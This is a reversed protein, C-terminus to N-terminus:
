LVEGIFHTKKVKIWGKFHTLRTEPRHEFISIMLGVVLVTLAFTTLMILPLKVKGM